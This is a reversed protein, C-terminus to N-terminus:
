DNAYNACATTDQSGACLGVKLNPNRRIADGTVRVGQTRAKRALDEDQCFPTSLQGTPLVQFTGDCVIHAHAPVPLAVAAALMYLRFNKIM